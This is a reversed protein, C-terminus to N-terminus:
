ELRDALLDWFYEGNARSMAHLGSTLFRLQEDVKENLKQLDQTTLISKASSGELNSSLVHSEDEDESSSLDAEASFASNASVKSYEEVQGKSLRIAIDLVMLLSRHVPALNKELLLSKEVTKAFLAHAETMEDVDDAEQLDKRLKAVLVALVV